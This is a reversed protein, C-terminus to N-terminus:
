ISRASSGSRRAFGNAFCGGGPPRVMSPLIRTGGGGGGGGGRGFRPRTPVQPHAAFPVLVLQHNAHGVGVRGDFLSELGGGVLDVTGLLPVPPALLVLFAPVEVLNGQDMVVGASERPSKVALGRTRTTVNIAITIPTALANTASM